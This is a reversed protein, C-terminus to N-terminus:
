AADKYFLVYENVVGTQYTIRTPIVTIITAGTKVLSELVIKLEKPTVIMEHIM